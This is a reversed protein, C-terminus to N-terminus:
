NVEEIKVDILGQKLDALLSFASKSLDIRSYTFRKNIRDTVTVFIYKKNELNTIKLQTGLPYLRSACTLAEDRFKQGNAMVLKTKSFQGDSKLSEVSYWSAKLIYGAQAPITFFLFFLLLFISKKLM